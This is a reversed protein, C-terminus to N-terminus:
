ILLKHGLSLKSYKTIQKKFIWISNDQHSCNELILITNSNNMQKNKVFSGEEVALVGPLLWMNHM